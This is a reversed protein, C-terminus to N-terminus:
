SLESTSTSPPRPLLPFCPPLSPPLPSPPAYQDAIGSITEDISLKHPRHRQAGTSEAYRRPNLTHLPRTALVRTARATTTLPTTLRLLRLAPRMTNRLASSRGLYILQTNCRLRPLITLEPSRDATKRPTHSSIFAPASLTTSIGRRPTVDGASMGGAVMGAGGLEGAGLALAGVAGLEVVRGGAM